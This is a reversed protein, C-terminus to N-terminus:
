RGSVPHKSQNREYHGPKKIPFSLTFISGKGKQSHCHVEGGHGKVILRVYNLGLGFGKYDHLKGNPVRYFKQFLLRQHERAIGIGNDKVSLTATRGSTQLTIDIEPAQRCYQAANELLNTLARRLRSEDGRFPVPVDPLHLRLVPKQNNGQWNNLFDDATSQILDQWRFATPELQIGQEQAGAELLRAVHAALQRSENSIINAYNRLREPQSVINPNKLVDASLQIASLPTKFEHTMNSVFNKQVESLQRQRFVVLLLYALVGLIALLGLSSWLWPALGAFLLQQRDPFYVGLYYANDPGPAVPTAQWNRSGNIGGNLGVAGQYDPAGKECNYFLYEFNGPLQQLTLHRSLCAQLTQESVPTNTGAVFYAPAVRKVPHARGTLDNAQLLIDQAVGQLAARARQEFAAEDQVYAQRVWFTQTLIIGAAALM